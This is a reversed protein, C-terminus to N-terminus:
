AEGALRILDPKRADAPIELGRRTLEEKLAAVTMAEYDSSGPKESERDEVVQVFLMPEAMLAEVQEATFRGDPHAVERAPHALGCRRFGDKKSRIVIPM